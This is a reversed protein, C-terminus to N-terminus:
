IVQPKSLTLSCHFEVSWNLFIKKVSQNSDVIRKLAIFNNEDQLESCVAGGERWAVVLTLM